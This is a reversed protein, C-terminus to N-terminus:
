RENQQPTPSSTWNTLFRLAEAAPTDPQATYTIIVLGDGTLDLAEGTLELDGVLPTTSANPPPATTSSTTAPGAPASTTAEPPSNASSTPSHNTTRTAAPRSASPPSPM